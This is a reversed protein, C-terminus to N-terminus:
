SEGRTAARKGEGRPRSNGGPQPASLLRDLAAKVVSSTCEKILDNLPRAPTPRDKWKGDSDEAWFIEEIGHAIALSRDKACKPVEREPWLHMALHSWDYDGDVLADWAIKCDKQRPPHHPVLRWLLAFNIIVGDDLASKCPPAVHKVEDLFTRLEAVFNEQSDLEKPLQGTTNSWRAVDMEGFHGVIARLELLRDLDVTGIPTAM